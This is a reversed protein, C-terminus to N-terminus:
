REPRRKSCPCGHWTRGLADCLIGGATAKSFEPWAIPEGRALASVTRRLFRFPAMVKRSFPLHKLAGTPRMLLITLDDGELNEPHLGGIQRLLNELMTKPEAIPIERVIDVLAEPGLPNGGADNADILADTYALVLDSDGLSMESQSYASQEELGLPLDTMEPSTTELLRWTQSAAEYHLPPPHGANNLTLHNNTAFFSAVLATAFHGNTMPDASFTQNMKRVFQTPDLYNVYRQMLTRLDNATSAVQEGHGSVDALLIRSIRGTACSSMYYVDGGSTARQFPRSYVWVDLGALGVHSDAPNNGGWVEMCQM